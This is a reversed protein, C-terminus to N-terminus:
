MKANGRGKTLIVQAESRWPWEWKSPGLRKILPSEQGVDVTGEM